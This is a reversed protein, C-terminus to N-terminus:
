LMTDLKEVLGKIQALVQKPTESPQPQASAEQIIREVNILGPCSKKNTIDRHRIVHVGDLPINWRGAIDKVLQVTAAYAAPTLDETAFGEHEISITYRNPNVGPRSLVLTSKPGDVIGNAWATDKEQVFQWVSGDKNVCYHSSKQATLFTQYISNASGEGIHIVICDPKWTGRGQWFHPVPKQIPTIM